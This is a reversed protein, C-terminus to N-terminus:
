ILKVSSLLVETETVCSVLAQNRIYFKWELFLICIFTLKKRFRIQIRKNTLMYINFSLVPMLHSEFLIKLSGEVIYQIKNCLNESRPSTHTFLLSLCSKKICAYYFFCGTSFYHFKLTYYLYCFFPSLFISCLRDKCFSFCYLIYTSTNINTSIHTQASVCVHLM